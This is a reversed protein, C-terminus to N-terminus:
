LISVLEPSMDHTYGSVEQEQMKLRVPIKFAEREYRRIQSALRRQEPSIAKEQARREAIQRKDVGVPKTEKRREYFATSIM